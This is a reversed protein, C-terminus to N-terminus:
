VPFVRFFHSGGFVGRSGTTAHRLAALSTRPLLALFFFPFLSFSNNTRNDLQRHLSSVKSFVEM